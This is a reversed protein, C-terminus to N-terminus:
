KDKNVKKINIKTVEPLKKWINKPQSPTPTVEKKSIFKQNVLICAFLAANFAINNFRKPSKPKSKDIKKIKLKNLETSYQTTKM